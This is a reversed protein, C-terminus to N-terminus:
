CNKVFDAGAEVVLTSAKVIEEDTLLSTEIIVKLVKTGVAQKLMDIEDRVYAYRGEKLAGINIVMDIESAGHEIANVAEFRKTESTNAGLPFGIVTCVDVTTGALRKAAHAVFRPQICVSRFNYQIAEDILVDIEATTADAKLLTHDIYRNIDM